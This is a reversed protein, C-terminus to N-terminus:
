TDYGKRAILIKLEQIGDVCEKVLDKIESRDRELVQVRGKLKAVETSMKVWVGLVAGVSPILSALINELEM